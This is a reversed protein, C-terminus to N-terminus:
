DLTEENIQSKLKTNPKESFMPFYPNSNQTKTNPKLAFSFRTSHRKTKYIKTPMDIYKTFRLLKIPKTALFICSFFLFDLNKLKMPLTLQPLFHLVHNIPFFVHKSNMM